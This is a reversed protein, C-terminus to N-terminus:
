GKRRAILRILAIVSVTCWSGELIVFPLYDIVWSAYTAIGSGAINLGIYTLSDQAVAGLLNLAFALLLLTVGAFGILDPVTM